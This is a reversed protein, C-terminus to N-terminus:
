RATINKPPVSGLLRQGIRRISYGTPIHHLHVLIRNLGDVYHKQHFQLFLDSPTFMIPKSSLKIQQMMQHRIRNLALQQHKM